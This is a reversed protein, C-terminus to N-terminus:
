AQDPLFPIGKLYYTIPYVSPLIYTRLHVMFGLLHFLQELNEVDVESGDRTEFEDPNLFTKNNIILARGRIRKTM